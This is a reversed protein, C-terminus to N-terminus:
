HFILVNPALNKGRPMKTRVFSTCEVMRMLLLRSGKLARSVMIFLLQGLIFISPQNRDVSSEIIQAYHSFSNTQSSHTANQTTGGIFNRDSNNRVKVLEPEGWEGDKWTVRVHSNTPRFEFGLEQWPVDMKATGPKGLPRETKTAANNEATMSMQLPNMMTCPRSPTVVSFANCTACLAVLFAAASVYKM